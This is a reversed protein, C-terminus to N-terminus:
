WCWRNVDADRLCVPSVRPLSPVDPRDAVNPNDLLPYLVDVPTDPKVAVGAKIGLAHIQKILETPPTHPAASTEAAEYHFCYM